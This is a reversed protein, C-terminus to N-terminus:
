KAVVKRGNKIFVGRLSKEVRVGKLNYWSANSTRNPNPDYIVTSVGEEIGAFMTWGSMTEYKTKTGIPVYLMAPSPTLDNQQTNENWIANAFTYDSLAYPDIIHSVVAELRGCGLIVGEGIEKLTNPLELKTLNHMYAFAYDGISTVGEPITLNKIGNCNY